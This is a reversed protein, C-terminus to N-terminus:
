ENNKVKKRFKNNILEIFWKMIERSAVITWKVLMGFVGILVLVIGLAFLATVFPLQGFIMAGILAGIAIVGALFLAGFTVVVTFILAFITIFLAFLVAGVAILMPFSLVGLFAILAKVGNSISPKEVAEGIKREAKMNRVIDSVSLDNIVEKEKLGSEIKDEILEDYYEILTTVDECGHYILEKELAKLFEKKTM